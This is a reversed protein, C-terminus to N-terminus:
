FHENCKPKHKALGMKTNFTKQCFKCEYTFLHGFHKSEIHARVNTIGVHKFNSCITCVNLRSNQERIIYKRLDDPTLIDADGSDVMNSAYRWYGDPIEVGKGSYYAKIKSVIM